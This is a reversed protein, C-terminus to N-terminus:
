RLESVLYTERAQDQTHRHTFLSEYDKFKSKELLDLHYVSVSNPPMPPDQLNCTDFDMFAKRTQAITTKNIKFYLNGNISFAVSNLGDMSILVVIFLLLGEM